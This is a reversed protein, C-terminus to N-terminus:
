NRTKAVTFIVKGLVDPSMVWGMKESSVSAQNEGILTLREGEINKVRKVIRKYCPHDVVVLDGVNISRYLRSALVFDGSALVPEMSAGKVKFFSLM